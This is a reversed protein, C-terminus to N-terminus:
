SYIWLLTNPHLFPALDKLAERSVVPCGWSNGTRKRVRANYECVYDAAHMVIARLVANNNSPELGELRYTKGHGGSYDGTIKYIGLSTSLSYPENSFRTAMTGRGSGKGHAVWTKYVIQGSAVDLVFLRKQDSPLSMDILVAYSKDFDKEQVLRRAVVNKPEQTTKYPSFDAAQAAVALFGWLWVWRM